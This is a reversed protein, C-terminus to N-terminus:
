VTIGNKRLTDALTKIRGHYSFGGRDFAVKEIGKEKMKAALVEGLVEAAQKNGGRECKNKIDKSLTSLGVLTRENIDDILQVHFNTLSRYVSLRPIQESGIIKKRIRFHRKVRKVQKKLM